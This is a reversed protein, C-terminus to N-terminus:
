VSLENPYSLGYGFRSLVHVGLKTSGIIFIANREGYFNELIFCTIPQMVQNPRMALFQLQFVLLHCFQLYVSQLVFYFIINILQYLLRLTSALWICFRFVLLYVNKSNVM